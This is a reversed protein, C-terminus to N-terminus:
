AKVRIAFTKTVTKPAYVTNGAAQVAVKVKYTKGKKLGKKVTVKGTKKAVKIKANGKKKTYTVAGKAGLVVLAKSRALVVKKKAAVTATRPIVSITNAKKVTIKVTSYVTKAQYFGDGAASAAIGVRYTKPELGKKVTIDGEKSVTIASDGSEKSYTVEGQAGSVDLVKSRKLVTKKNPNVKADKATVTIGNDRSMGLYRELEGDSLDCLAFSLYKQCLHNKLTGHDKIDDVYYAGTLYRYM